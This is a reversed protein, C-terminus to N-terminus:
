QFVLGLNIPDGYMDNSTSLANKSESLAGLKAYIEGSLLLYEKLFPNGKMSAEMWVKAAQYDNNAMLVKCHMINYSPSYRSSEGLEDFYKLALELQNNKYYAMALNYRYGNLASVAITKEFYSIAEGFKNQYYLSMGVANQAYFHEESLNAVIKFDIEANEFDELMYHCKGRSMYADHM